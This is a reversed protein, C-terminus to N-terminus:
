SRASRGVQLLVKFGLSRCYLCLGVAVTVLCVVATGFVLSVWDSGAQVGVAAAGFGLAAVLLANLAVSRYYGAPRRGLYLRYLLVPEYSFYTVLRAVVPAIFIGVLGLIQSLVVALVINLIAAALMLRKTRRYMGTAERFVWIPQLVMTLYLGVSLALTAARGLAFQPGLWLVVFQTAAFQFVLTVPPAILLALTQAGSFLEHNREPTESLVADGVGSTASSFGSNVLATVSAILMAYGAYRAVVATGFIISILITTSASFALVTAKYVGMSWLLDRTFSKDEASLHNSASHPRTRFHRALTYIVVNVALTAAVQVLLYAIYSQLVLLTGLQLVVQTFYIWARHRMILYAQQHATVLSALHTCSYSLATNSLLILYYIELHEPMPDLRVVYKLLPLGTVGLVLIGISINRYLRGYYRDLSALRGADSSRIPRLYSYAMATSLGLEAMSLMTLLDTLVAHLGVLDAGLSRAFAGRVVFGLVITMLQLSLAATFNKAANSSRDTATSSM